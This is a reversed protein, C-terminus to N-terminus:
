EAAKRRAPKSEKESEDLMKLIERLEKAVQRLASKQDSNLSTTTAARESRPSTTSSFRAALSPPPKLSRGPPRDGTPENDHRAAGGRVEHALKKKAGAITYQEDYLLEKIRLVMEIDKRKYVRHGAKSKEPALNPFETEWFRLVFPEIDVIKCVEGIRFFLKDPIEATAMSSLTPIAVFLCLLSM